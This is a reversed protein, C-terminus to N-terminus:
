IINYSNQNYLIDSSFKTQIKKLINVQVKYLNIFCRNLVISIQENEGIFFNEQDNGTNAISSDVEIGNYVMIHENSYGALFTGILYKKIETLNFYLKYLINNLTIQNVYDKNDLISLEEKTFSSLDTKQLLSKLTNPENYIMIGNFFKIKETIESIIFTEDQKVPKNDINKYVNILENTECYVKNNDKGETKSNYTYEGTINDIFLLKKDDNNDWRQLKGNSYHIKNDIINFIIDNDINPNGCISFCKNTPYIAERKEFEAREWTLLENQDGQLADWPQECLEWVLNNTAESKATYSIIGLPNTINSLQLKIIRRDTVIYFYNSNNYSFNIGKLVEKSSIPSVPHSYLGTTPDTWYKVKLELNNIIKNGFYEGNKGFIDITVKNVTDSLVFLAEKEILTGDIIIDYPLYALCCSNQRSFAGHRLLYKFNFYKDYVKIVNNGKDLVAVNGNFATVSIPSNFLYYDRFDGKGHLYNLLIIKNSAVGRDTLCRSIDYQFLANLDKDIVYLYNGDIKISSINKFEFSNNDNPDIHTFEKLHLQNNVTKFKRKAINDDIFTVSQDKNFPDEDPNLINEDPIYFNYLNIKDKFALFVGYLTKGSLEDIKDTYFIESAVINDIFSNDLPNIHSYNINSWYWGINQLEDPNQTVDYYGAEAIYQKCPSLVPILSALPLDNKPVICNKFIYQNNEELNSIIKQLVSTKLFDNVAFTCEELSKPLKLINDFQRDFNNDSLNINSIYNDGVSLKKGTYYDYPINDKILVYGKFNQKEGDIDITYFEDSSYYKKEM